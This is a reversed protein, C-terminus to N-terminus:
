VLESGRLLAAAIEWLFVFLAFYCRM